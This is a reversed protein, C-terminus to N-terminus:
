RMASPYLGPLTAKRIPHKSREVSAWAIAAQTEVDDSKGFIAVLMTAVNDAESHNGLARFARIAETGTWARWQGISADREDAFEREVRGRVALVEAYRTLTLLSSALRYLARAYLPRLGQGNSVRELLGSALELASKDSGERTLWDAADLVVGLFREEGSPGWATCTLLRARVCASLDHRGAREFVVAALILARPQLVAWRSVDLSDKAIEQSLEEIRGLGFLANWRVFQLNRYYVLQQESLTSEDTTALAADAIGLADGWEKREMAYAGQLLSATQVLETSEPEWQRGEVAAKLSRAFNVEPSDGSAPQRRRSFVPVYRGKPLHIEIDSFRGDGALYYEHLKSRTDRAVTAVTRDSVDDFGPDKGFVEIGISRGNIDTSGSLKQDVVWRLFDCSRDSKRFTESSLIRELAGLVEVSSPEATTTEPKPTGM